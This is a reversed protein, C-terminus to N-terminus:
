TRTSVQVRFLLGNRSTFARRAAASTAAGRCKPSTMITMLTSVIRCKVGILGGDLILVGVRIEGRQKGRRKRLEAFDDGGRM